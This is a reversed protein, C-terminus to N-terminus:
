MQGANRYMGGWLQLKFLAGSTTGTIATGVVHGASVVTTTARGNADVSIPDNATVTVAGARMKTVGFLCVTCEEGSQPKNQLVGFPTDLAADCVDVQDNGSIEVFFYQKASLDNEAKAQGYNIQKGYEAM